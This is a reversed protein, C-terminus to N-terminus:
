QNTDTCQHSRDDLDAVESPQRQASKCCLTGTEKSGRSLWFYRRSALGCELYVRDLKVLPYHTEKTNISM